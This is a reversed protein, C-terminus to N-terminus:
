KHPQTLDKLQQLLENRDLVRVDQPHEVDEAAPNTRDLKLRDLELRMLKLRKEMKSNRADLAIKLMNGSATFIEGANKVEVSLGLEHLTKGYELALESVEDMEDDHVRIHDQQKFETALTKANDLMTTIDPDALQQETQELSPLDFTEELAGFRSM